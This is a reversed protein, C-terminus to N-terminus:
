RPTVISTRAAIHANVLETIEDPRDGRWRHESNPWLACAVDDHSVLAVAWGILQSLFAFQLSVAEDRSLGAATSNAHGFWMGFLDRAFVFAIWVIILSKVTSRAALNKSTGAWFSGVFGVTSCYMIVWAIEAEHGKVGESRLFCEPHTRVVDHPKPIQEFCTAIGLAHLVLVVTFVGGIAGFLLGLAYRVPRPQAAGLLWGYTASLPLIIGACLGIVNTPAECMVSLLELVATIILAIWFKGTVGGIAASIHDAVENGRQMRSRVLHEVFHNVILAAPLVVALKWLGGWNMLLGEPGLMGLFVLAGTAAGVSVGLLADIRYRKV